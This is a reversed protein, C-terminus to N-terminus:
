SGKRALRLFPSAKADIGHMAAFTEGNWDSAPCLGYQRWRICLITGAVGKKVIQCPVRNEGTQWSAILCNARQNPRLFNKSKKAILPQMKWFGMSNYVLQGRSVRCRVFYGPTACNTACKVPPWPTTLELRAVRVMPTVLNPWESKKYLKIHHRRISFGTVAMTAPKEYTARCRQAGAAKKLFACVSNAKHWFICKKSRNGLLM